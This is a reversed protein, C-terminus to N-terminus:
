RGKAELGAKIREPRLPITRFRVGTADFLANGLAAAVPASAPEGV